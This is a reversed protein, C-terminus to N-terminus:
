MQVPATTSGLVCILAIHSMNESPHSRPELSLITIPSTHRLLIQYVVQLNMNWEAYEGFVM